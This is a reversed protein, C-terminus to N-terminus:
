IQREYRKDIIEGRSNEYYILNGNTDYERKVWFGNSNEFYINNDNTDYVDNGKITVPQNYVKSLVLDMEDQKLGYMNLYKIYPLEIDKAIYEIYKKYKDKM